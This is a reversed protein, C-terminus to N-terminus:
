VCRMRIPKLSMVGEYGGYGFMERLENSNFNGSYKQKFMFENLDRLSAVDFLDMYVMM